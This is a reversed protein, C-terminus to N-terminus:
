IFLKGLQPIKVNEIELAEIQRRLLRM